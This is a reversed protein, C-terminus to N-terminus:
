TAKLGGMSHDAEQPKSKIVKGEVIKAEVRLSLSLDKKVDYVWLSPEGHPKGRLSSTMVLQTVAGAGPLLAKFGSKKPRIDLIPIGRAGLLEREKLMEAESLIKPDKRNPRQVYWVGKAGTSFIKASEQAIDEFTDALERPILNRKRGLNTVLDKSFYLALACGSGFASLMSAFQSQMDPLKESFGGIHEPLSVGSTIIAGVALISAGLLFMSRSPVRSMSNKISALHEEHKKQELSKENPAFSRAGAVFPNKRYEPDWSM